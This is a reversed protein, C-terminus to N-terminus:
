SGKGRVMAVAAAHGQQAEQYTCYRRQYDAYEGGFVMTEFVVPPGPSHRYNMALFVTSVSVGGPLEDRAVVRGGETFPVLGSTEYWAAWEFLEALRIIGGPEVIYRENM